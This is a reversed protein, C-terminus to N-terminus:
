GGSRDDDGESEGEYLYERFNARIKTCRLNVKERFRPAVEKELIDDRLHVIKTCTQCIYKRWKLVLIIKDGRFM